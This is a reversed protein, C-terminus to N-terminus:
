SPYELVEMEIGLFPAVTIPFVDYALIGWAVAQKGTVALCPISVSAYGAICAAAGGLILAAGGGMLGVTAGIAINNIRDKTTLGNDTYSSDISTTTSNGTVTEQIISNDAYPPGSKKQQQTPSHFPTPRPPNSVIEDQNGITEALNDETTAGWIAGIIAGGLLVIAIAWPFYGTQDATNIPNNGCYAFM